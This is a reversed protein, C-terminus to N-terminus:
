SSATMTVGNGKQLLPLVFTFVSGKGPESEVWIAGSHLHILERCVSLGLGTGGFRKIVTEDQQAFPLFIGKWAARDIGIGTDSVSVLLYSRHGPDLVMRVEERFLPPVRESLGATEIREAEIRIEGGEPTFKAANSLLNFVIQKVKREDSMMWEPVEDIRAVLRINHRIAKERILMLSEELLRRMNVRSPSFSVQGVEIMSLNLIDEVLSLLHRGSELIQHLHEAQKENLEGFYRGELLEAFGIIANLPTRLEHSMNALFSSKARNAAQAEHAMERARTTAKQLDCTRTEVLRELNNQYENIRDRSHRLRNVMRNFERALAAIEDHSDIRLDQDLDGEGIRRAGAILDQIPRTMRRTLLLTLLSGLVMLLLTVLITSTLFSRIQLRSREESFGLHIFGITDVKRMEPTNGRASGTVKDRSRVVPIFLDLYKKGDDSRIFEGYRLDPASPVPRYRIKSFLVADGGRTKYSIVRESRDLIYVYAISSDYIFHDLVRDLVERNKGSLGLAVKEALLSAIVRGHDLSEEIHDKIEDHIVFAAMVSITVVILFITLLNLKKLLTLRLKVTM